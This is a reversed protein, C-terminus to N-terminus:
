TLEGKELLQNIINNAKEITCVVIDVSALGGAPSQGGIFGGM